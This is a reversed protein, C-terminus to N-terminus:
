IQFLNFIVDDVGRGRSNLAKGSLFNTTKGPFGPSSQQHKHLSTSVPIHLLPKADGASMDYGDLPVHEIRGSQAFLLHMGPAVPRVDPRPTPGVPAPTVM